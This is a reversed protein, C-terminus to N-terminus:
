DAVKINAKVVVARYRDQEGKIFASFQEPSKGMIEDKGFHSTFEPRTMALIIAKGIAQVVEPPTGAPAFIGNWGTATIPTLGAEAFTPIDPANSVRRESAVALARIKGSKIHQEVLSWTSFGVQVHGAVLDAIDAGFSRYPVEKMDIGTAFKLREGTLQILSGPGGSGYNLGTPNAKAYGLFEQATKVPLATNVLLMLPAATLDSVPVLDDHMRPGAQPRLIDNLANGINANLLTYGDRPAKMVENAAIIGNGGPKNEVVVPQKLIDTLGAAMKRVAIDPGSGAVTAVIIRIPKNPYAGQGWAPLVAAAGTALLLDRRNLMATEKM